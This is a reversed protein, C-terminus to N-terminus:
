SFRTDKCLKGIHVIPGKKVVTKPVWKKFKQNFSCEISVTKKLDVYKDIRSDQFDEEDDSEEIADLNKNERIRRFIGNMFVSTKYNPIYALGYYIKKCKEGYAYLHYIDYQLDAKVEFVASMKYQPKSFEYRPLSPPIFLDSLPEVITGSGIKRGILVNLYPSITNLTRHQIHHIPHSITKNLSVPIETDEELGRKWIVPLSFRINDIPIENNNQLFAEIFGLKEGFTLKKLPIGEHFFIDEIIFQIVKSEIQPDEYITGYIVTGLALKISVKNTIIKIRTVKKDKGLEMFFCVDENKFFTFWIFAKKGHPIALCAQYSEPVKKHSITEYSLEFKPFRNMVDSYQNANLEM